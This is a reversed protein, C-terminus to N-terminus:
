DKPLSCATLIFIHVVILCVFGDSMLDYVITLFIFFFLIDNDTEFGFASAVSRHDTCFALSSHCIASASM